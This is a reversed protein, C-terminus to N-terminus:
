NKDEGLNNLQHAAVVAQGLALGGDNPPVTRHTLVRFGQAHLQAVIPKLIHINQFVGGSLAVTNQGLHQRYHESLQVVLNIISTHFRTAMVTPSTHAAIDAVLAKLIAYPQIVLAGNQSTWELPYAGQDTDLAYAELEIAAQAEYSIQQRIGILAAAVDFLRGMSSTMVTQLNRELQRALIRQEEAPCAQVPPLVADWAIGAQWLYALAMRYPRQVASDGGPLPMPQLYGVREFDAYSAQLVEGGWITGDTGFGTGDFCFGLVSEEASLGHEAMVAAIHAHHHQVSVVPIGQAAAFEQAWRTSLYRPHLDCAIAQPTIQFLRLYHAALDGFATLTELNEMDGIHQSLIAHQETAICFTSKLEGGVALLPAVEFPLRVPFPAYGRSRRIPLEHDAVWRVVSDDCRIHIDRNHLLFADALPALRQLADDNDKIIPEGSVNGSTMVLPANIDELLLSHLPTYPLMVGVYGNGPAVAEALDTNPKRRLLVIPRERRLLLAAEQANCEAYAEVMALDRMMVAFPKDVRGKRQRLQQIADAHTADCALHFGGLGKIAVIQGAQLAAVTLALADGAVRQGKAVFEIQPGCDPCANPQAHFRRNAPDDYERQCAACMPFVAMTTQPRDYPLGHIITLRPGCNTCNIFPYRYRRDAPDHLERLCDDCTCLDPSVFTRADSQHQSAIIAFGNTNQAPIRQVSVSEVHALPPPSSELMDTFADLAARDGEIEIFVGRSDNGVFGSVQHQQALGYVFPRFGVGQVIGTVRLRRREIAM